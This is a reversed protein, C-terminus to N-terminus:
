QRIQMWSCEGGDNKAYVIVAIIIVIILSLELKESLIIMLKNSDYPRDQRM